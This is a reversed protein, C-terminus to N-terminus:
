NVVVVTLPMTCVTTGSRVLAWTATYTGASSPAVMDVIVTYSADHAVDSKMDLLDEGAVQFKTGSIYKIDIDGHYWAETGTNKVVWKGDFDTGKKVTDTSKPSVDTITCNYATSTATYVPTSTWPVPTKTPALTPPVPTSTALPTVTSTPTSTVTPTNTELVPTDTPPVLTPNAIVTQAVQTRLSDLTAQQDSTTQTTPAVTTAASNCGALIATIMIVLMLKLGMSKTSM